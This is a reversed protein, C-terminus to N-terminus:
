TKAWSIVAPTSAKRAQSPGQCFVSFTNTILGDGLLSVPSIYWLTYPTVNRLTILITGRAKRSADNDLVNTKEDDGSDEEDSGKRKRPKQIVPIPGSVLFPAVSRLFGLLLIQNTLINRDQDTIGKGAHPFNWVIRDFIRGRLSPCKDLKTADVGFIIEVGKKRLTTIIEAADPYKSCCGEETDYATATVNSPPLFQLPEPPSCVLARAFSFNGEGILLISDTSSFPITPRIQSPPAAKGTRKSQPGSRARQAQQVAHTAGQKKKLRSQQSSLAAKLSNKKGGKAM